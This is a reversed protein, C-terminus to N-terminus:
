PAATQRVLVLEQRGPQLDGAPVSRFDSRHVGPGPEAELGRVVRHPPHQGHGWGDRGDAREQETPACEAGGDRGELGGTPARDDPRRGLVERVGVRRRHEVDVDRQGGLPAADRLAPDDAVHGVGLDEGDVGGEAGAVEIHLPHPDLSRRDPWGVLARHPARPEWARLRDLVADVDPQGVGPGPVLDLAMRRGAAPGQQPGAHGVQEVRGVAGAEGDEAVVHGGADALREAPGAPAVAEVVRQADVPEHGRLPHQEVDADMGDGVPEAVADHV